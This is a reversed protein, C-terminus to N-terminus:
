KQKVCAFTITDVSEFWLQKEIQFRFIPHNILPLSVETLDAFRSSSAMSDIKGPKYTIRAFELSALLATLLVLKERCYM